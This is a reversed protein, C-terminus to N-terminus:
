GSVLNFAAVAILLSFLLFLTAKQVSIAQYLTGFETMWSRVQPDNGALQTYLFRSAGYSNFLDSLRGQVGHARGPLRLLRQADSLSICAGGGALCGAPREAPRGAM